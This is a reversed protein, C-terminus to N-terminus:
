DFVVPKEVMETKIVVYPCSPSTKKGENEGPKPGQLTTDFYVANDTEYLANVSISYGGTEQEGYGICIYLYQNDTYTIQFPKSKREDLVTKLEEPIKEESLVTFDLDRLKVKEESLFTCGALFLMIGASVVVCLAMKVANQRKKLTVGCLGSGDAQNNDEEM